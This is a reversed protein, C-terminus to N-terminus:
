DKLGEQRAASESISEIKDLAEEIAKLKLDYSLEKSKKREDSNKADRESQKILRERERKEQATSDKQGAEWDKLEEKLQEIKQKAVKVDNDLNSKATIIDLKSQTLNAVISYRSQSESM